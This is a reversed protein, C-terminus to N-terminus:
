RGPAPREANLLARLDIGLDSRGAPWSGSWPGDYPPATHLQRRGLRRLHHALGRHGTRQRPTPRVGGPHSRHPVAPQPSRHCPPAVPLRPRGTGILAGDHGVFRTSASSGAAISVVAPVGRGTARVVLGRLRGGGRRRASITPGGGAALTRATPVRAATQELWTLSHGRRVFDDVAREYRDPHYRAIDCSRARCDLDTCRIGDVEVSTASSTTTPSRRPSPTCRCCGDDRGQSCRGSRRQRRRFRRRRHLRPRARGRHRDSRRRRRAHRHVVQQEWTSPMGAICLVGPVPETLVGRARLRAVANRGLGTEAAQRRTVAGHRSAALEGVAGLSTSVPMRASVIPSSGVAVGGCLRSHEAGSLRASLM